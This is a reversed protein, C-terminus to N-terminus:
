VQGQVCGESTMYVGGTGLAWQVCARVGHARAEPPPGIAQALVVAVHAMQLPCAPEVRHVM